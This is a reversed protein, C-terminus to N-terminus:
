HPVRSRGLVRGLMRPRDRTDLRAFLQKIHHAVTYAFVGLAALALPKQAAPSPVRLSGDAGVM